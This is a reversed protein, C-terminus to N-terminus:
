ATIVVAITWSLNQWTVYYWISDALAGGAARWMNWTLPTALARGVPVNMAIYIVLAVYIIMSPDPGRRQPHPGLALSYLQVATGFILAVLADQWFYAVLSWPSAVLHHGQLSAIKALLLVLFLGAAKM